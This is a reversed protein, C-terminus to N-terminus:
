DKDTTADEFVIELIAILLAVIIETKISLTISSMFEDVIYLVLWNSAFEICVRTITVKFRGIIYLTTLKFIAKSFLEVIIGLSYFAFVFLLLSWVTDYEVGLLNFVGAIGFILGWSCLWGFFLLFQCGM